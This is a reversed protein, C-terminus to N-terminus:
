GRSTCTPSDQLVSDLTGGRAAAGAITGCIRKILKINSRAQGPAVVTLAGQHARWARELLGGGCAGCRLRQGGSSSCRRQLLTFNMGFVRSWTRAASTSAPACWPWIGDGAAVSHQQAREPGRGERSVRAARDSFAYDILISEQRSNLLSQGCYLRAPFLLFQDRQTM